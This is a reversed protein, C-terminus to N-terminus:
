WAFLIKQPQKNEASFDASILIAFYELNCKNTHLKIFILCDNMNIVLYLSYNKIILGCCCLIIGIISLFRTLVKEKWNLM